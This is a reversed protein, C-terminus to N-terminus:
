IEIGEMLIDLALKAQQPCVGNGAAKLEENRTLGIGTIWGPQLGMMWETFESSLRHAGDRGDPKTPAPAPRGLVQEWQRIASEFRGWNQEMDKAQNSLWVQGNKGKVESTQQAPAKYGEQAMPTMLLHVQDEIRGKPAGDAVEHASSNSASARPTGLLAASYKEYDKEIVDAVKLGNQVSLDSIQDRLMIFRHKAKKMVASNAGGGGEIASPTRFLDDRNWIQALTVSHLSGDKQQSSALNATYQDSVTPTPLSSFESDTIPHGQM